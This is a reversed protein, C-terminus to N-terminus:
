RIVSSRLSASPVVSSPPASVRLSPPASARGAFIGGFSVGRGRTTLICLPRTLGERGGRGVGLAEAAATGPRPRGSARGAKPQRGGGGTAGRTRVLSTHTPPRHRTLGRVRCAATVPTGEPQALGKARVQAFAAELPWLSLRPSGWGPENGRVSEAGM